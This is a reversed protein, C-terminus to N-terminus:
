DIRSQMWANIGYKQLVGAFAGAFAEKRTMSQGYDRVSYCVAREYESKRAGKGILFLAFRSNSPRIAIWAFGCVGGEVVYSKVVPSNDNFVQAHQQVVMAVPVVETAAAKGAAVAELYIEEMKAVSYKPTKQKTEM